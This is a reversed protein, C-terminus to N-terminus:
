KFMAIAITYPPRAKPSFFDFQLRHRSKKVIGLNLKRRKRFREVFFFHFSRSFVRRKRKARCDIQSKITDLKFSKGAPARADAAVLWVALMLIHFSGMKM